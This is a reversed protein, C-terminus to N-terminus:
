QSTVGGYTSSSETNEFDRNSKYIRKGVCQWLSQEAKTKESSLFM